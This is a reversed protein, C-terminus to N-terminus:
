LSSPPPAAVHPPSGQAVGRAEDFFALTRSHAVIGHDRGVAAVAGALILGVVLLGEATGLLGGGLRDAWGLGAARVGRKVIKGTIIVAGVTSVVLLAGAAVRLTLDGWAVHAEARLWAALPDTFLRVTVIAGGLAILSFAERIMGILLGRLAALSLIAVALVDFAAM